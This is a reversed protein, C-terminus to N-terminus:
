KVENKIFLEKGTLDFYLNQLQHVYGINSNHAYGRIKYYISSYQELVISKLRYGYLYHKFGFKILWEETLPIPKINEIKQIKTIGRDTSIYELGISTIKAESHFDIIHNGIRLENPTIM